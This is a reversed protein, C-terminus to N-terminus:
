DRFQRLSDPNTLASLNNVAEGHVSKTVAVEVKCLLM